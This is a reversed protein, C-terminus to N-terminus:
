PQEMVTGPAGHRDQKGGGDEQARGEEEPEFQHDGLHHQRLEAAARGNPVGAHQEELGQEQQAVGVRVDQGGAQPHAPLHENV